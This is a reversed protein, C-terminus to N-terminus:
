KIVGWREFENNKDSILFPKKDSNNFFEDCAIRAGPFKLSFYEDIYMFAGNSMRRWAFPLSIKYSLYIDCDILVSMFKNDAFKEINMTESFDGKILIINDLGLFKAKKMVNEYSTDEFSESTSINNPTYNNKKLFNKYGLLKKHENFHSLTIKNQELLERFNEFDDKKHIVPPFGSFSDFGYVKKNSNLEKLLLATALLSKGKYVGVELIDGDIENIKKKIFDYYYSLKSTKKYNDIGLVEYEWNNILKIM